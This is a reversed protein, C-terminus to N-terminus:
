TSPRLRTLIERRLGLVLLDFQQDPSWGVDMRRGCGLREPGDDSVVSVVGHPGHRGLPGLPTDLEGGRRSLDSGADNAIGV